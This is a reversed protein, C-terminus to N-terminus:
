GNHGDKLDTNSNEAMASLNSKIKILTSIFTEQEEEPLNALAEARLEAAVSRMTKLLPDVAGDLYVLKVRRDEDLSRREIWGKAELRDLLRGLTAREIELIESLNTQSLGENFYLHNLVWWQSRTLGLDRMRRDFLTRMQRATDNLLFGVNREASEHPEYEAPTSQPEIQKPKHRQHEMALDTMPALQNDLM